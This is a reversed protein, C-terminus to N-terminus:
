VTMSIRHVGPRYSKSILYKVEEYHSANKVFDVESVDTSYIFKNGVKETKLMDKRVLRGIFTKTRAPKWAKKQELIEVIEKSTVEQNAWVVRMVEWESDTIKTDTAVTM